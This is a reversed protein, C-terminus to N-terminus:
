FPIWNGAPVAMYSKQRLFQRKHLVAIGINRCLLFLPFGKPFARRGITSSVCRVWMKVMKELIIITPLPSSSACSRENLQSQQLALRHTKISKIKQYLDGFAEVQMKWLQNADKVDVRLLEM